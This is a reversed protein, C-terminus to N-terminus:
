QIESTNVFVIYPSLTITCTVADIYRKGIDVRFTEDIKSTRSSLESRKQCKLNIQMM